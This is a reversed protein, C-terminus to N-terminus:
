SLELNFEVGLKSFFEVLLHVKKNLAPYQKSLSIVKEPNTFLEESITAIDEEVSEQGYERIFGDQLLKENPQDSTIQRKSTWYDHRYKWEPPNAKLWQGLPFARNNQGVVLHAFEHHFTKLTELRNPTSNCNILFKKRGVMAQGAAPKGNIKLSDVFYLDRIEARILDAPYPSFFEDVLNLTHIVNKFTPASAESKDLNLTKFFPDGSEYSYHITLNYCTAIDKLLSDMEEKKIDKYAEMKKLREIVEKSSFFLNRRKIFVKEKEVLAAVKQNRQHLLLRNQQETKKSQERTLTWLEAACNLCYRDTNENTFSCAPCKIHHSTKSPAPTFAPTFSPTFSPQSSPPTSLAEPAFPKRTESVPPRVPFTYLLYGTWLTIGSLLTLLITKIKM